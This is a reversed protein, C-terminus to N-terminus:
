TRRHTRADAMRGTVKPRVKTQGVEGITRCHPATDWVGSLVLCRCRWFYGGVAWRLMVTSDDNVLM